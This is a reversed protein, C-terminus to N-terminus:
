GAEMMLLTAEFEPNDFDRHRVLANVRRRAEAPADEGNLEILEDNLHQLAESVAAFLRAPLGARRYLRQFAAGRPAALQRRVEQVSVQSLRSIAFELFDIQGHYLARVLITPTLKGAAYLQTTMIEADGITDYKGLLAIMAGENGQSVIKEILKSSCSNRSILEFQLSESVMDILKGVIAVPLDPRRVMAEKIPNNNPFLVVVNDYTEEDIRAGPNELLTTVPEPEGRRVITAAVVESVTERRAVANQQPPGKSKVIEMLDADTLVESFELIPLAVSEVDNALVIAIDHPLITSTKLQEALTERVQLEVSQSLERLVDEAHHRESDTLPSEMFIRCVNHSFDSLEYEEPSDLFQKLYSKASASRQFVGGESSSKDAHENKDFGDSM